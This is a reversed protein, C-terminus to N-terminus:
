SQIQAVSEAKRTEYMLVVTCQIALSNAKQEETVRTKAKQRTLTSWKSKGKEVCSASQDFSPPWFNVLTFNLLTFACTVGDGDKSFSDSIQIM